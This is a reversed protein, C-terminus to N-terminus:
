THFREVLDRILNIGSNQIFKDYKEFENVLATLLTLKSKVIETLTKLNTSGSGLVSSLEKAAHQTSEVQIKYMLIRKSLEEFATILKNRSPIQSAHKVPLRKWERLCDEIHQLLEEDTM